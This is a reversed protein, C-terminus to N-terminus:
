GYVEARFDAWEECADDDGWADADDDDWADAEADAFALGWLEGDDDDSDPGEALGLVRRARDITEGLDSLVDEVEAPEGDDPDFALLDVALADLRQAVTAVEFALVGESPDLVLVGM